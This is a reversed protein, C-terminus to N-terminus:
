LGLVYCAAGLLGAKPNLIVRVPVRSMVNTLRGKCQLAQLFAGRHIAPLIHPTIGGGVYVGGTALVKLALNGAEAGLISVFLDLAAACIACPQSEHLAANLIVPTPDAAAALREALWDPEVAAGTDKLFAYIHPVGRGSCVQEYSVHEFRAMLYRLLDIEQENTPAFDSHGGESPQPHYRAGDWTLFAEGLGTGPAIVAIAGGPEPPIDYLAEIDAPQLHPLSNALAELDNLLHAAELGLESQLRREDLQWPLNTIAARGEVVPGSVGFAAREVRLTTRALFERVISELDPYGGSPFTAEAVPARPGADPSYVALTTKTGGIDGALLM